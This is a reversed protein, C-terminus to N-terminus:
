NLGPSPSKLGALGLKSYNASRMCHQNQWLFHINRQLRKLEVTIVTKERIVKKESLLACM